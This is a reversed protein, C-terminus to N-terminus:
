IRASDSGSGLGLRSSGLRTTYSGGPAYGLGALIKARHAGGFLFYSARVSYYFIVRPLFLFILRYNFLVRPLFVTNLVCVLRYNFNNIYIYICLSSMTLLEGLYEGLHKSKSAFM